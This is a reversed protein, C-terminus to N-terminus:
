VVFGTLYPTLDPRQHTVGDHDLVAGRGEAGV